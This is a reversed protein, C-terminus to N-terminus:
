VPQKENVEKAVAEKTVKSTDVKAPKITVSEGEIRHIRFKKLFVDDEPELSEKNLEERTRVYKNFPFESDKEAEHRLLEISLEENSAELKSTKKVSVTGVPTKITRGKGFWAPNVRIVNKITEEVDILLTQLHAYEQKHQQVVELVQRNITNELGELRHSADSYDALMSVLFEFDKSEDGSGENHLKANNGM